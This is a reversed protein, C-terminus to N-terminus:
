LLPLFQESSFDHWCLQIEKRFKKVSRRVIKKNYWGPERSWYSFRQYLAICCFYNSTWYFFLFSIRNHQCSKELTAIEVVITFTARNEAVYHMFNLLYSLCLTNCMVISWSVYSHMYTYGLSEHILCMIMSQVVIQHFFYNM